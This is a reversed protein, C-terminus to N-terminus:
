TQEPGGPGLALCTLSFTIYVIKTEALVMYLVFSSILLCALDSPM